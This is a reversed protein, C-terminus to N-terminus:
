SNKMLEPVGAFFKWFKSSFNKCAPRLQMRFTCLFIQPIKKEKRFIWIKRPKRFRLQLHTSEWLFNNAVMTMISNETALSDKEISFIFKTLFNYSWCKQLEPFKKTNRGVFNRCAQWFEKACTWVFLKPLFFKTQSACLNKMKGPIRAFPNWIKSSFNKAAHDCRSEVHVSACNSPFFVKM